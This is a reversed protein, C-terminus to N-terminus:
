KVCEYCIVDEALTELSCERCVWQGCEVCCELDCEVDSEGCRTCYHLGDHESM